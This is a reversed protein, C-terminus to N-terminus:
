EYIFPPADKKSGWYISRESMQGVYRFFHDGPYLHQQSHDTFRDPLGLSWREFVNAVTYNLMSKKGAQLASDTIFGEFLLNAAKIQGDEGLAGIYVMVERGVCPENLTTAISSIDLGSLGLAMTSSKTSNEESVSGIEGLTGVGSFTQGNIIIIGTGTHVRTIGSPFDIQVALVLVINEQEMAAVMDDSFPSYLM